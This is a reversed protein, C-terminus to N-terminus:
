RPVVAKWHNQMGPRNADDQMSQLVVYPVPGVM